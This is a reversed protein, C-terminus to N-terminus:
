VRFGLGRFGLGGAGQFSGTLSIKIPRLQVTSKGWSIRTLPHIGSDLAERTKTNGLMNATLM